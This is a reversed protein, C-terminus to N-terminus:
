IKNITKSSFILCIERSLLLLHYKRLLNQHAKTIHKELKECFILWKHLYRECSVSSFYIIHREDKMLIPPLRIKVLMVKFNISFVPNYMGNQRYNRKGGAIPLNAQRQRRCIPLVPLFVQIRVRNEMNVITINAMPNSAMFNFTLILTLIFMAQFIKEGFRM